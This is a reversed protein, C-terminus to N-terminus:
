AGLRRRPVKQPMAFVAPRIFGRVAATARRARVQKGLLRRYIKGSAAYCECSAHELGRGDLITMRGRSYRILKRRQLSRAARTVGVRRVGLMQALFEQTLYFERSNARDRTMLLWRALRAEVVHFRMCAAMQALQSMLVHFYRELTQQLIPSRALVRAFDAADLRLATGAGQVLARMPAENVGLLLSVGLMGETGVLGLELRHRGDIASILSIFAGTPFYVHRIREGQESLREGFTLAVPACHLLLLRREGAPLTALLLNEHGDNIAAAHAPKRKRRRKRPEM